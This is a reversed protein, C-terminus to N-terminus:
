FVRKFHNASQIVVGFDLALSFSTCEQTKRKGTQRFQNLKWYEHRLNRGKLKLNRGRNAAGLLITDNFM